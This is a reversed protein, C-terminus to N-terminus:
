RTKLIGSFQLDPILGDFGIVEYWLTIGPVM